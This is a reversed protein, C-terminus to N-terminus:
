AFAGAASVERLRQAKCGAREQAATQIAKALVSTQWRLEHVLATNDDRAALIARRVDDLRQLAPGLSLNFLSAGGGRPQLAARVPAAIQRAAPGRLYGRLFTRPDRIGSTKMAALLQDNYRGVHAPAGRWTWDEFIQQGSDLRALIDRAASHIGGDAMRRVRIGLSGLSQSSGAAGARSAAFKPSVRSYFSPPVYTGDEARIMGGRAMMRPMLNFGMREAAVNLITLSRTSRNIPIFAEDGVMRDGILRPQRPPVIEARNAPMTRIGGRAYAAPTTYAGEAREPIVKQGVGRSVGGVTRIYVTHTSSKPIRNIVPTANDRAAITVTSTQGNGFRVVGTIQGNAPNPNGDLTITATQGNGYSVTGNIKGTAPNPNADLTVTGTSGDAFAVAATIKGNM